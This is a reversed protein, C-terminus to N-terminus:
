KKEDKFRDPGPWPDGSVDPYDFWIRSSAVDCIHCFAALPNMGRKLRSYTGGNEGEVLAFAVLQEETFEVQYERLLRMRFEHQAAKEALEPVVYVEGDPGIKYKFLKEADHWFLVLIADALRFGLLRGTAALASYMLVAINLVEDTHDSWGGLWAQHNHSSGRSAAIKDENLMVFRLCRGYNLADVRMHGDNGTMLYEELIDHTSRRKELASMMTAM